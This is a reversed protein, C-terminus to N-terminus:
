HVRVLTAVAYESSANGPVMDPNAATVGAEAPVGAIVTVGQMFDIALGHILLQNIDVCLLQMLPEMADMLDQMSVSEPMTRAPATM